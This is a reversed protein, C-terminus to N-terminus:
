SAAETPQFAEIDDIRGAREKRWRPRVRLGTRVATPNGGADVVHTLATDAGDLTILAFAFPTQLPHRDGPEAVWTWATVTGEPGVEVLEQETAEGTDPDYELPPVIVKGARTRVGLIRESALGDFFAGIVPGLSRQYPFELTNAVIRSASM